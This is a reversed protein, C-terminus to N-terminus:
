VGRQPGVKLDSGANMDRVLVAQVLRHLLSLCRWEWGLGGPRQLDFISNDQKQKKIKVTNHQNRGYLM